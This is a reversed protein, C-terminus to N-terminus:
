GYGDGKDDTNYNTMVRLADHRATEHNSHHNNEMVHETKGEAIPHPLHKADVERLARCYGYLHTHLVRTKGGRKCGGM